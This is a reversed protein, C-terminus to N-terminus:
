SFLQTGLPSIIFKIDQKEPLHFCEWGQHGFGARFYLQWLNGPSPILMLVFLFLVSELICFHPLQKSFATHVNRPELGNM